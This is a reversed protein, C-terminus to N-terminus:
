VIYSEQVYVMLIVLKNLTIYCLMQWHEGGIIILHLQHDFHLYLLFLQLISVQGQVTVSGSDIWRRFNSRSAQGVKASLFVDLRQGVEEASVKLVIRESM